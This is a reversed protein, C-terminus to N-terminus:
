VVFRLINIKTVKQVIYIILEIEFPTTRGASKTQCVLMFELIDAFM